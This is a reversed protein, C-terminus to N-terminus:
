RGARSMTIIAAVAIGAGVLARLERAPLRHAIATGFLVGPVSGLCTGIVIATDLHGLAAHMVGSGVLTLVGAVLAAAVARHVGVRLPGALASVFLTGTGVSTLGAILGVAAGVAGVLVAHPDKSPADAASGEVGAGGGGNVKRMGVSQVVVLVGVAALTMTLIRELSEVAIRGSGWAGLVAVPIAGAAMTVGLKEEKLRFQRRALVAALKMVVAQITASGVIVPATLQPYLVLLSAAIVSGAGISTAGVMVGGAVGVAVAPLLGLGIETM